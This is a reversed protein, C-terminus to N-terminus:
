SKTKKREIEACFLSIVNEPNEVTQKEQALRAGSGLCQTIIVARKGIYEADKCTFNDSLCPKGKFHLGM